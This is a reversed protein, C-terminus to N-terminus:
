GLPSLSQDACHDSLGYTFRSAALVVLKGIVPAVQVLLALRAGNDDDSADVAIV